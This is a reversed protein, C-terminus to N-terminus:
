RPRVRKFNVTAWLTSGHVHTGVGFTDAERSLINARHGPSRLFADQLRRVALRWGDRGITICGVNQGLWYWRGAGRRIDNHWLARGTCRGGYLRASRRAMATSHARALRALGPSAALRPLRHRQRDLNTVRALEADTRGAAGAPLPLALLGACVLLLTLLRRIPM